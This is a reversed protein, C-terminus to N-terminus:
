FKVYRDLSEGSRLLYNVGIQREAMNVQVFVDQVRKREHVDKMEKVSKGMPLWNGDGLETANDIGEEIKVCNLAVMGAGLSDWVGERRRCNMLFAIARRRLIPDRCRCATVFLPVIPSLEFSPSFSCPTCASQTSKPTPTPTAVYEPPSQPTPTPSHMNMPPIFIMTSTGTVPESTTTLVPQLDLAPYYTTAPERSTPRIMESLFKSTPTQSYSDPIFAQQSPGPPPPPPSTTTALNPAIIRHKAAPPQPTGPISHPSSTSSSSSSRSTPRTLTPLTEALDVITKFSDVLTDWAMESKLGAGAAVITRAMIAYIKLLTNGAYIKPDGQEHPPVNQQYKDFTIEWAEFSGMLQTYITLWRPHEPAQPNINAVGSIWMMCRLLGVLDNRAHTNQTYSEPIQPCDPSNELGYDYPSANDSFTMAQLDFRYLVNAISEQAGTSPCQVPSGRKQQSLIRLGNRLHMNAARYNGALNEYCTFIICAILVKELDVKGEEHATLLDNSHKVAQMYQVFAFDNTKASFIPTMSEFREHMTSLALIGHKIAPETHSLQMIKQSWLDSDFFETWKPLTHTQFYFFSRNEASDPSLSRSPNRPISIPSIKQPVVLFSPNRFSAAASPSNSRSHRSVHKYGQCKRGAKTCKLCEPKTEDCKVRRVRCTECGTKVRLKYQRELQRLKTEDM